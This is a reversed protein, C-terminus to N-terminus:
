KFGRRLIKIRRNTCLAVVSDGFGESLRLAEISDEVALVKFSVKKDGKIVLFNDVQRTAIRWMERATQISIKGFMNFLISIYQVVGDFQGDRDAALAAYIEFFEGSDIAVRGVPYERGTDHEINYQVIHLTDGNTFADIRTDIYKGKSEFTQKM